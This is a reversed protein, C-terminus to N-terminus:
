FSAVVSIHISSEDSGDGADVYAGAVVLLFNKANRTSSKCTLTFREVIDWFVTEIVPSSPEFFINGIISAIPPYAIYLQSSDSPRAYSVTLVRFCCCMCM